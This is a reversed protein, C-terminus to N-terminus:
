KLYHFVCELVCSVNFCYSKVEGHMKFIACASWPKVILFHVFLSVVLSVVVVVFFLCIFKCFFYFLIAVFVFGFMNENEVVFRM